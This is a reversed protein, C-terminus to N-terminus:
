ADYSALTRRSVSVDNKLISYLTWGKIDDLCHTMGGVHVIKREQTALDHLRQAPFSDHLPNGKFVAVREQDVQRTEEQINNSGFLTNYLDYYREIVDAPQWRGVEKDTQLAQVADAKSYASAFRNVWERMMEESIIGICCIGRNRAHTGSVLVEYFLTNRVYKEAQSFENPIYKKSKADRVTKDILARYRESLVFELATPSIEVTILAPAETQLAAELRRKGQRDCHDTGILIIDGMNYQFQM